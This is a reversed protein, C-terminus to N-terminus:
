IFTNNHGFFKTDSLIKKFTQNLVEIIFDFILFIIIIYLYLHTCIIYM